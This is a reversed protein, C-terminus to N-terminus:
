PNRIGDSYVHVHRPPHDGKWTVFVYGGTPTKGVQSINGGMTVMALGGIFEILSCCREAPSEQSTDLADVYKRSIDIFGYIMSM